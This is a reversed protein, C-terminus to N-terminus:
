LTEVKAHEVMLYIAPYKMTVKSGINCDVWEM